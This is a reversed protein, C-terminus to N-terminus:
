AACFFGIKKVENVTTISPFALTAAEFLSSSSPLFNRRFYSFFVKERGEKGAFLVLKKKKGQTVKQTRPHPCERNTLNLNGSEGERPPLPSPKKGLGIEEQRNRKKKELTNEYGRCNRFRINEGGKKELTCIIDIWRAADISKVIPRVFFSSFCKERRTLIDVIPHDNKGGM